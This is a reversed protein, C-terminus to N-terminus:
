TNKPPLTTAAGMDILLSFVRPIFSSISPDIQIWYLSAASVCLFFYLQLIHLTNTIILSIRVDEQEM